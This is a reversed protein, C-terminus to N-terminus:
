MNIGNSRYVIVQNPSLFVTDNMAIMEEPQISLNESISSITDGEETLYLGMNERPILIQENPYIYDDEDLGNILLLIRRDINNKRAVSLITESSDAVIKKDDIIIEVQM